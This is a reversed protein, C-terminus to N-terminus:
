PGQIETHPVLNCVLPISDADVLREIDNRVVFGAGM